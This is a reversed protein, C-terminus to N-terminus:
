VGSHKGDCAPTLSSSVADHAHLGVRTSPMVLDLAVAAVPDAQELCGSGAMVFLGTRPPTAIRPRSAGDAGAVRGRQSESPVTSGM